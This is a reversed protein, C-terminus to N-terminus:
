SVMPARQGSTKTRAHASSVASTSFSKQPGAGASTSTKWVKLFIEPKRKFTAFDNTMGSLAEVKLSQSRQSSLSTGDQAAIDAHVDHLYRPKWIPGPSPSVDRPFGHRLYM